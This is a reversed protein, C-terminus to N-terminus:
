KGEWGIANGEMAGANGRGIDQQWSDMSNEERVSKEGGVNGKKGELRVGGKQKGKRRQYVHALSGDTDYFSFENVCNLPKKELRACVFPM